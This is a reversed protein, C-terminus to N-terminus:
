VLDFILYFDLLILICKIMDLPALSLLRYKFVCYVHIAQEKCREAWFSQPEFRGKDSVNPFNLSETQQGARSFTHKPDLDRGKVGQFHVALESNQKAGNIDHNEHLYYTSQFSCVVLLLLYFSTSLPWTLLYHPVGDSRFDAGSPFQCCRINM